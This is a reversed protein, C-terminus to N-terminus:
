VPTWRGGGQSDPRREAKPKRHAVLFHNQQMYGMFNRNKPSTLKRSEMARPGMPRPLTISNNNLMCQLENRTEMTLFVGGPGENFLEGEDIVGKTLVVGPVEEFEYADVVDANLFIAMMYHPVEGIIPGETAPRAFEGEIENIYSESRDIGYTKASEGTMIALRKLLDRSTLASPSTKKVQVDSSHAESADAEDSGQGAGVAFLPNPHSGGERPATNDEM